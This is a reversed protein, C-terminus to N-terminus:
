SVESEPDEILLILSAIDAQMNILKTWAKESIKVIGEASHVGADDIVSANAAHIGDLLERLEAQQGPKLGRPLSLNSAVSVSGDGQIGTSEDIPSLEDDDNKPITENVRNGVVLTTRGVAITDGQKLLKLSCAAGNVRTGNTSDLDTVVLNGDDEQIKVHYRSVREDNLQVVNGDERGITIPTKLEHFTRGRDTGHIVRLTLYQM